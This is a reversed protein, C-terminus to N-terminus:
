CRREHRPSYVASRAKRRRLALGDASERVANQSNDRQIAFPARDFYDNAVPSNTDMGVDFTESATFTASITREVTGTAAQKGNIWFVLEAPSAREFPTRMEMSISVKGAPLRGVRIKDRKILLASYEYRLEGKYDYLTVGGAYGGMAFIVGNANKPAELDIEARLNGNRVNPAQTEPIRTMGSFLTWETNASRKMDQPNLPAYLGGGIPLVKNEEAQRMFLSKLEELKEPHQAAEPRLRQGDL